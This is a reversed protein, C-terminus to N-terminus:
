EWFQSEWVYNQFYALILYLDVDLRVKLLLPVRVYILPTEM